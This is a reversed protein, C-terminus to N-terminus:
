RSQASSDLGCVCCVCFKRSLPEPRCFGYVTLFDAPNLLGSPEVGETRVVDGRRPKPAGEDFVSKACIHHTQRGIHAHPLWDGPTGLPDSSPVTSQWGNADFYFGAVENSPNVIACITSQGGKPDITTYNGQPSHLFGHTVNSSDVYWGTIAGALLRLFFNQV